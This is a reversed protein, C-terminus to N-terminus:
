GRSTPSEADSDFVGTADSRVAPAAHHASRLSTWEVTLANLISSRKEVVDSSGTGARENLKLATSANM